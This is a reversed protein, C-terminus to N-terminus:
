GRLDERACTECDTRQTISADGSHKFVQYRYPESGDIVHGCDLRRKLRCRRYAIRSFALAGQRTVWALYDEPQELTIASM